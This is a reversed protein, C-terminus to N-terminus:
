FTRNEEPHRPGFDKPTTRTLLTPLSTENVLRTLTSGSRRRLMRWRERRSARSLVIKRFIDCFSRMGTVRISNGCDLRFAFLM